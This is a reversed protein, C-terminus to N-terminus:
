SWPFSFGLISIPNYNNLVLSAPSAAEDGAAM